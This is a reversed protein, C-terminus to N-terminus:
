VSRFYKSETQSRLDSHSESPSPTSGASNGTPSPTSSTAKRDETKSGGEEIRSGRDENKRSERNEVGSSALSFRGTLLSEAVSFALSEGPAGRGHLTPDQQLRLRRVERLVEDLGQGHIFQMAFFHIGSCEGVGFVPVIHTHHLRAAARAERRFREV